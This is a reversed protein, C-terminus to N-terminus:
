KQWSVRFTEPLEEAWWWSNEAIYEASTYTMLSAHCIGTGFTCHFVGSLPYLFQGFCASKRSLFLNPFILAGTPKILYFITVICPWMFTFYVLTEGFGRHKSSWVADRRLLLYCQCEDRRARAHAHWIHCWIPTKVHTYVERTFRVHM